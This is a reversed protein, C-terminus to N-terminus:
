GFFRRRKKGDNPKDGFYYVGDIKGTVTLKGSDSNFSEIKMDEGDISLTGGDCLLTVNTDTFGIVDSIGSLEARKGSYIFIDQERRDISGGTM